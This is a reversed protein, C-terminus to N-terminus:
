FSSFNYLEELNTNKVFSIDFHSFSSNNFLILLKLDNFYFGFMIFFLFFNLNKKYFDFKM